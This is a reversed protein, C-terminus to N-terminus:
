QSIAYTVQVSTTITLEGPSIPTMAAEPVAAAIDRSFVPPTIYQIQESVFTPKGLTVGALRALQQAKKLADSMAEERAQDTYPTRDEIDFGMSNIRTLDGGARAVADIIEGARDINRIKAVVTNTVQYGTIISEQRVQDYRYVPSISFHQTQIDREAIGNSELTSVVRNMADTAKSIAQDVTAEQSQVGLILNFIDPAATVEGQGTVWIGQQQTSFGSLTFTSGGGQCGALLATGLLLVVSVGILWIKKM